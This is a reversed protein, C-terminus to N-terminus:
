YVAFTSSTGPFLPAPTCGCGQKRDERQLDNNGVVTLCVQAGEDNMPIALGDPFTREVLYRPNNKIRENHLLFDV